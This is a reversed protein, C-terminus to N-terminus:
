INVGPHSWDSEQPILKRIAMGMAGSTTPNMSIVQNPPNQPDRALQATGELEFKPGASDAILPSTPDGGMIPDNGMLLHGVWPPIIGDTAYAAVAIGMLLSVAGILTRKSRFAALKM